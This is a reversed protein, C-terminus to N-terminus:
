KPPPPSPLTEKPLARDLYRTIWTGNKKDFTRTTDRLVDTAKEFSGPNDAFHKAWDKTAGGIGGVRPFGAEKLAAGLEGHFKTHLSHHLRALEQEAPGGMFRPWTHHGQVIGRVVAPGIDYGLDKIMSAAGAGLAMFDAAGTAINGLDKGV